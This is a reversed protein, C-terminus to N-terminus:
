LSPALLKDGCMSMPNVIYATRDGSHRNYMDQEYYNKTYIVFCPALLSTLPIMWMDNDSHLNIRTHITSDFHNDTLDENSVEHGETSLVIVWKEKELHRIPQVTRSSHEGDTNSECKYSIEADTLDIIM